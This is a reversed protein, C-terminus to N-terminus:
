GGEGGMVIEGRGGDEEEGNTLVKGAERFRM